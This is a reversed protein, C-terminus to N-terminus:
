GSPGLTLRSAVPMLKSPSPVREYELVRGWPVHIKKMHIIAGEINVAEVELFDVTWPGPTSDTPASACRKVPRPAMMSGSESRRM